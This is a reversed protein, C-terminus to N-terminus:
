GSKKHREYGLVKHRLVDEHVTHVETEPQDFCPSLLDLVSQCKVGLLGMVNVNRGPDMMASGHCYCYNLVAKVQVYHSATVTM